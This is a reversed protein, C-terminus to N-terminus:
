NAAVTYTGIMMIRSRSRVRMKDFTDDLCSLVLFLIGIVLRCSVVRCSVVRVVAEVEPRTVLDVVVTISLLVVTVV